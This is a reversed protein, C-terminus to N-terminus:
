QPPPFDRSLFKKEWDSCTDLWIQHWFNKGRSLSPVGGFDSVQSVGGLIQSRSGGGSFRLGPVGGRFRLGPVGGTWPQIPYGGGGDLHPSVCLTFIYSEGDKPHPRYYTWHCSIQWFEIKRGQQIASDIRYWMPSLFKEIRSITKGHCIKATKCSKPQEIRIRARIFTNM